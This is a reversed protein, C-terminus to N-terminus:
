LIKNRTFTQNFIRKQQLNSDWNYNEYNKLITYFTFIIAFSIPMSLRFHPLPSFLSDWILTVFQIFFIISFPSNYIISFVKIGKLIFFMLIFFMLLMAFIGNNVGAGILVSHVPIVFGKKIKFEIIGRKLEKDMKESSSLLIRFYKGTLDKKWAGHGLIPKDALAQLGVKFEGRGILLLEFPNYPNSMKITQEYSHSGGIRRNLVGNTWIVYGTYGIILFFLLVILFSGKLKLMSKAFVIYISSAFLIMGLSRSDFLFFITAVSLLVIMLILMLEKKLLYYSVVLVFSILIPAIRFKFVDENFNVLSVYAVNGAMSSANRFIISRVLLGFFFVVIIFTNSRFKNFLYIFTLFSVITVMLGRSVNKFENALLLESIIQIILYVIYFGTVQSLFPYAKYLTRWPIFVSMLLVWIESISLTGIFRIYIGGLLAYVFIEINNIKQM